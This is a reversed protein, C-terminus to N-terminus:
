PSRLGAAHAEKQLREYASALDDILNPQQHLDIRNDFAGQAVPAFRQVAAVWGAEV